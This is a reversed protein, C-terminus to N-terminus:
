AFIFMDTIELVFAGSRLDFEAFEVIQIFHIVGADFDFDKLILEDSLGLKAVKSM